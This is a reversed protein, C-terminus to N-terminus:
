FRYYIFPAVGPPGLTTIVLLSGALLAGKALIGLEGFTAQIREGLGKPGYQLALAGVIAAIVPLRVLPAPDSWTTFLRNLLTFAAHFTDARFFLWGLCVVHFTILEVRARRWGTPVGLPTGAATARERRIHGAVQAVGHIGGWAVFTWAAGHWLGGLLMTLMLNRYTQWPRGRNGGLPIYLYDRLWSSLTIHWRRWFDQSARPRTRRTSTRRSTSARPAARLGIAIDTYGSFDCYIQVAYGYLASRPDGAGISGPTAFVPNSSARSLYDSIVVKKFLGGFILYFAEGSISGDRTLRHRPRAPAAPRQARVIPGAVLHPFFAVFVAVDLPSAPHLLGRYVDIVYSLAMFTFFSIGVPLTVQLIPVPAGHIGLHHLTNDATM